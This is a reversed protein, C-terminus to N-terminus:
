NKFIFQNKNIDLELSCVYLIYGTLINRDAMRMFDDSGFYVLDGINPKTQCEPHITAMVMSRSKKSSFFTKKEYVVDIIFPDYRGSLRANVVYSEQCKTCCRSTRNKNIPFPNHSDRFDTIKKQCLCCIEDVFFDFNPDNISRYYKEKDFLHNKHKIAQSDRIIGYYTKKVDLPEATFFNEIYDIAAEASKFILNNM